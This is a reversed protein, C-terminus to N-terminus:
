LCREKAKNLAMYSEVPVRLNGKGVGLKIDPKTAGHFDSGGSCVLGFKNAIRISKIITEEDYTSYYCEMGDLGNNRSLFEILEQENLNLFPHALVSVAGISSIFDIIEAATLMQPEKYYGASKSLITDFGEKISNIYGREVMARAIHARNFKGNPTSSKITGYDLAFGARNLSGILAINSEEKRKNVSIMLDSVKEFCEPLIFLGLIHLEIGNYDVSFEAGPVIEIKKGRAADIFDPLGDITNHDTLAVASLGIKIAEDIIEGPSCTGDSYISHTHLDCLKDM